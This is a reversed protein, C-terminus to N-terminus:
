VKSRPIGSPPVHHWAKHARTFASLESYGLLEAVESMSRRGEVRYLDCLDRRVKELLDRFPHGEQVLKRRLTRETLGFSAALRELKLPSKNLESALYLYSLGAHKRGEALWAVPQAYKAQLEIQLDPNADPLPLNLQSRDFELCTAEAGFVVPCGILQAYRTEAFRPPHRFRVIRPAIRAPLCTRYFHAYSAVSFEICADLHSYGDPPLEWILRVPKAECDLHARWINQRFGQIDVSTQLMAGVTPALMAAFGLDSFCSPKAASALRLGIAPDAFEREIASFFNILVARSVSGIPNRLPADSLHLASLLKPRSAGMNVSGRLLRDVFNASVTDPQLQGVRPVLQDAWHPIARSGRRIRKDQGLLWPKPRHALPLQKSAVKRGTLRLAMFKVSIRECSWGPVCLWRM